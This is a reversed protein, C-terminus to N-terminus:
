GAIRELTKVWGRLTVLGDRAAAAKSNGLGLPLLAKRFKGPDINLWYCGARLSPSFVLKGRLHRATLKAPDPRKNIYRTVM